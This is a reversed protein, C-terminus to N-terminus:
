KDRIQVQLFAIAFVLFGMAGRWYTEPAYGLVRANVFCAYIGTLFAIAAFAILVSILSRLVLGKLVRNMPVERKCPNGLKGNGTLKTKLTSKFDELVSL